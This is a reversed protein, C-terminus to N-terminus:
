QKRIMTHEDPSYAVTDAGEDDYNNTPDDKSQRFVDIPDVGAGVTGQPTPHSTDEATDQPLEPIAYVGRGVRRANDKVIWNPVDDNGQRKMSIAVLEKRTWNTKTLDYGWDAGIERISEVYMQQPKTLQEFLANNNQM